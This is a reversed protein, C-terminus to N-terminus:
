KNKNLLVIFEQMMGVFEEQDIDNLVYHGNCHEGDHDLCESWEVFIERACKNIKNIEKM